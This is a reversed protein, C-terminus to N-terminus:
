SVKQYTELFEEDTLSLIEDGSLVIWNNLLIDIMVDDKSGLLIRYYTRTTGPITHIYMGVHNRNSENLWVKIDSENERGGEFKMAELVVPKEIIHLVPSVKEYMQSFALPALIEFGSSESKVVFEGPKVKVLGVGREHIMLDLGEDARINGQARSGSDIVWDLIDILQDQKGTFRVVLVEEDTFRHQFKQTEVM